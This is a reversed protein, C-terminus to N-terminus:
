LHFGMHAKLSIVGHGFGAPDRMFISREVHVGDTLDFGPVEIERGIADWVPGAISKAGALGHGEAWVHLDLYVTVNRYNSYHGAVVTQGDGIIITPFQEPRTGGDRVQDAAVLAMVAPTNVLRARIATQLALSPETM